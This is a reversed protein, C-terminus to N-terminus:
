NVLGVLAPQLLLLAHHVVDGSDHHAQHVGALLLPQQLCTASQPDDTCCAHHSLAGPQSDYLPRLGVQKAYCLQHYAPAPAPTRHDHCQHPQHVPMLEVWCFLAKMRKTQSGAACM